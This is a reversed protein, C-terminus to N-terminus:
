VNLHNRSQTLHKKLDNRHFVIFDIQFVFIWKISMDCLYFPFTAHAVWDVWWVYKARVFRKKRESARDKDIEQWSETVRMPHHRFSTLLIKLFCTNASVRILRCVTGFQRFTMIKHQIGKKKTQAFPLSCVFSISKEATFDTPVTQNFSYWVKLSVTKKTSFLLLFFSSYTNAWQFQM